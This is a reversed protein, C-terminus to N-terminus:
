KLFRSISVEALIFLLAMLIAWKWLQKGNQIEDFIDSFNSKVNSVVSANKLGSTETKSKIEDANLYHLDSEARNYNFSLTALLQNDNLVEYQGSKTIQDGTEIRLEAPQFM